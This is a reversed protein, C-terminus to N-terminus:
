IAMRENGQKFFGYDVQTQWIDSFGPRQDAVMPNVIFCKKYPLVNVRLWEDYIPFESFNWNKVIWDICKRSYAVAHTTWCNVLIKLHTSYNLPAEWKMVDSGMINAGLFLIDWDESLEGTASTIIDHCDSVGSRFVCDDELILISDGGAGSLAKFQSANFALHKNEGTIADIRNAKVELRDLEYRIQLNRDTRAALNIYYVNDFFSFGNM